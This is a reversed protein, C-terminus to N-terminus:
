FAKRSVFRGRADREPLMRAFREDREEIEEELNAILEDTENRERSVEGVIVGVALVALLGFLIAGVAFGLAFMM